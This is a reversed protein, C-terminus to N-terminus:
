ANQECVGGDCVLDDTQNQTKYNGRKVNDADDLILVSKRLKEAAFLCGCFCMNLLSGRM